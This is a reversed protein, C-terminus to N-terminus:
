AMGAPVDYIKSAIRQSFEWAMQQNISVYWNM